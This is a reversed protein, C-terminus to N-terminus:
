TRKALAATARTSFCPRLERDPQSPSVAASPPSILSLDYARGSVLTHLEYLGLGVYLLSSIKGHAVRRIM